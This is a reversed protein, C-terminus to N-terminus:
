NDKIKSNNPVSKLREKYIKNIYNHFLKTQKLNLDFKKKLLIELAKKLKIQSNSISDNHKHSEVLTKNTYSVRVKPIMRLILDFDQYRPMIPDFLYKNIIKKEVLIAQTSIFNGTTILENIINNNIISKEQINNPYIYYSNKSIVKIKCFDLETKKNIINEFQIKLKEPYMIDDSDQFSIYNGKANKIGVNRAISGGTNNKLKIYKIRKDKFNDVVNKTKDISGDDVVIIELNQYTQNLVSKISNRILKERNYTPIIVSIKENIYKSQFHYILIMLGILFLKYLFSNVILLEIFYKM